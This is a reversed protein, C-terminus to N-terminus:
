FALAQARADAWALWKTAAFRRTATHGSFFYDKAVGYTVRLSPFGPYHWIANPPTPLGVLAQMVQRLGLVIVLLRRLDSKGLQALCEQLKDEACVQETTGVM